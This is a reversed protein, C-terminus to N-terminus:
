RTKTLNYLYMKWYEVCQLSSTKVSHGLHNRLFIKPATRWSNKELDSKKSRIKDALFILQSPKAKSFQKPKQLDYIMQILNMKNKNKPLNIKMTEMWRLQLM